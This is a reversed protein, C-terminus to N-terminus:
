QRPMTVYGGRTTTDVYQVPFIGAWLGYIDEESIRVTNDGELTIKQGVLAGDARVQGGMAIFLWMWSLYSKNEFVKQFETQGINESALGAAVKKFIKSGWPQPASGARVLDLWQSFTRPTPRLWTYIRRVADKNENTESEAYAAYLMNLPVFMEHRILPRGKWLPTRVCDKGDEALSTVEDVVKGETGMAWKHAPLPAEEYCPPAPFAPSSCLVLLLVIMRKM